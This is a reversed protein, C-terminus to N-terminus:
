KKSKISSSTNMQVPDAFQKALNQLSHTRPRIAEKKEIPARNQKELIPTSSIVKTPLPPRGKPPKFSAKVLNTPRNNQTPADDFLISPLSSSRQGFFNAQNKQATASAGGLAANSSNRRATRPPSAPDSARRPIVREEGEKGKSTEKNIRGSEHLVSEAETYSYRRAIIAKEMRPNDHDWTSHKKMATPIIKQDLEKEITKDATYYTINKGDNWTFQWGNPGKVSIKLHKTSSTPENIETMSRVALALDSRLKEVWSSGLTENDDRKGTLCALSRITLNFCDKPPSKNTLRKKLGGEHFLKRSFDLSSLVTGDPMKVGETNGHAQIYLKSIWKNGNNLFTDIEEFSNFTLPKIGKTPPRNAFGDSKDLKETPKEAMRDWIQQRHLPFSTRDKNGKEDKADSPLALFAVHGSHKPIM